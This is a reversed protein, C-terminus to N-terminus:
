LDDYDRTDTQESAPQGQPRAPALEGILAQLRAVLEDDVVDDLDSEETETVVQSAPGLLLNARGLSGDEHRVPIEISGSTNNKALAEAYDVVAKAIAHGTLLSDNAYHIREM